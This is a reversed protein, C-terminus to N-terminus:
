NRTNSLNSHLERAELKALKEVITDLKRLIDNLTTKLETDSKELNAIKQTSAIVINRIEKWEVDEKEHASIRETLTAIDSQMAVSRNLCWGGLALAICSLLGLVTELIPLILKDGKDFTRKPMMEQTDLM